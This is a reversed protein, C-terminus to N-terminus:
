RYLKRKKLIYEHCFIRSKITSYFHQKESILAFM